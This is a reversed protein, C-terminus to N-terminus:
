AVANQLLFGSTVGTLLPAREYQTGYVWSKINREYYPDEVHPNNLMTYTYGFSPEEITSSVTPVYALIVDKGWIDISTDSDDFGIAKGIIVKPIDFVAALIDATVIGRESYKIKEVIKPHEKLVKLVGAPIELVNPYVGTSTRIAEKADDIDKIPNSNAYDSWQDTGSLTNKHNNGYKAADRALDAHEKELSLSEVRMVGNIAGISLDIGPVVQAERQHEVPVLAELAHNSLGYNGNAYGFQVRKTATGPARATNYLRFADKGFQIIKGASVAVSVRPFLEMGIHEPHKFGLVVNSLIPDIVRRQALNPM